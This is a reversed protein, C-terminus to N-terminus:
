HLNDDSILSLMYQPQISNQLSRELLMSISAARDEEQFPQDLVDLSEEYLTSPNCDYQPPPSDRAKQPSAPTPQVHRGDGTIHFSCAHPITLMEDDSEDHLVVYTKTKHKGKMLYCLSPNPHKTM